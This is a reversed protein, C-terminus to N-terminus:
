NTHQYLPHRGYHSRPPLRLACQELIGRKFIMHRLVVQKAINITKNVEATNMRMQWREIAVGPPGGELGAKVHRCEMCITPLGTGRLESNLRSETPGAELGLRAIPQGFNKLLDVIAEPEAEIM